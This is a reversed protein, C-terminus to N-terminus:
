GLMAAIAEQLAEPSVDQATPTAGFMVQNPTLDPKQQGSLMWSLQELLEPDNQAVSTLSAQRKRQEDLEALMDEATRPRTLRETERVSARGASLSSLLTYLLSGAVLPTAGAKFPLKAAGKLLRGATGTQKGLIGAPLGRATAERGAVESAGEARQMLADFLAEVTMKGETAPTAM